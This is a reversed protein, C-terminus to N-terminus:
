SKDAFLPISPISVGRGERRENAEWEMDELYRDVAIAELTSGNSRKAMQDEKVKAVYADEEGPLEALAVYAKAVAWDVEKTVTQLRKEAKERARRVAREEETKPPSTVSEDLYSINEKDAIRASPPLLLVTRTHLFHPTTTLTSLPLKNLRCLEERNVGFKFVIGQLTDGRKIHYQAQRHTPTTQPDVNTAAEQEAQLSNQPITGDHLVSADGSVPETPQQTRSRDDRESTPPDDSEDQEEVDDDGLVFTDEDRVAGDINRVPIQTGKGNTNAGVVDVGALCMLCPNYRALRPNSSICTSCIPQQCCPTTFIKEFSRMPLSSACALCLQSM